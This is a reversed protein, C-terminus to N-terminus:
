IKAFPDARAAAVPCSEGVYSAVLEANAQYCYVNSYMGAIEKPPTDFFPQNYLTVQGVASKPNAFTENFYLTVRQCLGTDLLQPSNLLSHFTHPTYPSTSTLSYLLNIAESVVGPGSLPNTVLYPKVQFNYQGNPLSQVAATDPVTQAPAIVTGEFLPVAGVIAPVLAQLDMGNVGGIYYNVPVNIPTKGDDTVDAYPVILSGQMLAPIQLPAANLATMRIDNQYGVQLLLPHMDTPFPPLIDSPVNLPKYGKTIVPVVSKPIPIICFTANLSTTRNAPNNYALTNPGAQANTISALAAVAVAFYSQLRPM